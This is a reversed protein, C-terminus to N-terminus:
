GFYVLSYLVPWITVVFTWFIQLALFGDPGLKDKTYLRYFYIMALLAGIAHLAHCGIILYFTAGFVGSTMTMGFKILNFWEYGQVALFFLGTAIALAFLSKSRESGQNRGACIMLIGSVILVATNFGTTLIPLTVNSPPAFIGASAKIVIRTSILASFFMIEGVVFILIGLVPSPIGSRSRRLTGLSADQTMAM